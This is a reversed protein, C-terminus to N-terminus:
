EDIRGWEIFGDQLDKQIAEGSWGTIGTITESREDADAPRPLFDDIRVPILELTNGNDGFGIRMIVSENRDAGFQDFVFNGLSYAIVGTKYREIGQLVHPHHGLVVDAGADISARALRRQTDSPRHQYEVGWHFSVVVHDSSARAERVAEKLDVLALPFRTTDFGLWAFTQGAHETSVLGGENRYGGVPTVGAQKLRAVSDEWAAFGFDANHNNTVSAHTTGIQELVPMATEPDAKFCYTKECGGAVDSVVSELNLFTADSTSLVNAIPALEDSRDKRALVEGVGRSLMVDGVANVTIEQESQQDSCYWIMYSTTARAEQQFMRGSDNHWVLDNQCARAQGFRLFTNAAFPSDLYASSLTDIRDTDGRNFYEITEM